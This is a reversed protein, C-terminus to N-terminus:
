FDGLKTRFIKYIEYKLENASNSFEIRDHNIDKMGKAAYMASRVAAMLQNLRISNEKNM